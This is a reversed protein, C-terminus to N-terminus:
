PCNRAMHGGEGCGHCKRDTIDIRPKPCEGAHVQNCNPCKNGGPREPRPERPERPERRQTQAGAAGGKKPPFRGKWEGLAAVMEEPSGAQSIAAMLDQMEENGSAGSAEEVRPEDSVGHIKGSRGGRRDKDDRDWQVELETQARLYENIAGVSDFDPM